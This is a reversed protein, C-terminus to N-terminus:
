RLSNVFLNILEQEERPQVRGTDIALVPIGDPTALKQSAAAPDLQIGLVPPYTALEAQSIHIDSQRRESLTGADAYVYVVGTAPFPHERASVVREQMLAKIEPERRVQGVLTATVQASIHSRDLAIKKHSAEVKVHQQQLETAKDLVDFAAQLTPVDARLFLDIANRGVLGGDVLAKRASMCQDIQQNPELTVLGRKRQYGKAELIKLASSKGGGSPGEVIIIEGM